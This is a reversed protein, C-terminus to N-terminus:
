EHTPHRLATPAASAPWQPAAPAQGPARHTTAPAALSLGAPYGKFERGYVLRALEENMGCEPCADSPDDLGRLDYQCWPCHAFPIPRRPLAAIFLGVGGVLVIYPYLLVQLVPLHIRGQTWLHLRYHLWAVFVLGAVGLAVAVLSPWRRRWRVAAYWVAMAYVVFAFV